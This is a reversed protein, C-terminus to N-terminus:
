RWSAADRPLRGEPDEVRLAPPNWRWLVVAQGGLSMASPYFLGDIGAAAMAAGAAQTPAIGDRAADARWHDAGLDVPIAFQARM